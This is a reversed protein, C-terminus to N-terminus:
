LNPGADERVASRLSRCLSRGSRSPEIPSPPRSHLRRRNADQPEIEGPYALAERYNAVNLRLGCPGKIAPLVQEFIPKDGPGILAAADEASMVKAKLSELEIRAGM